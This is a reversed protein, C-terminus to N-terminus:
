SLVLERKSSISFSFRFAENPRPCPRACPCPSPFPPAVRIGEVTNDDDDDIDDDTTVFLLLPPIPPVPPISFPLSPLICRYGCVEHVGGVGRVGGRGRVGRPAIIKLVSPKGIFSFFLQCSHKWSLSNNRSISYWPYCSFVVIVVVM